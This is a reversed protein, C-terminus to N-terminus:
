NRRAEVRFYSGWLALVAVAPVTGRLVGASNRFLDSIALVTMLVMGILALFAANKVSL